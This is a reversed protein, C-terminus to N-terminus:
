RLCFFLNSSCPAVQGRVVNLVYEPTPLHCYYSGKKDPGAADSPNTREVNVARSRVHLLGDTGLWIVTPIGAFLPNVFEPGSSVLEDNEFVFASENYRLTRRQFATLGTFVSGVIQENITRCTQQAGATGAGFHYNIAEADKMKCSVVEPYRWGTSPVTNYSTYQQVTLPLQDGTAITGTTFGKGNYSILNPGMYPASSSYVFASLYTHGVTVIPSRNTTAITRQAAACQNQVAEQSYLAPSTQALATGPLSGAALLALAALGSAASSNKSDM